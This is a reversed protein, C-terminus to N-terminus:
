EWTDGSSFITTITPDRELVVNYRVVSKVFVGNKKGPSFRLDYRQLQLEQLMTEPLTSLEVDIKDVGGTENLFIRFTAEGEITPSINEVGLDLPTLISPSDDLEQSTFYRTSYEVFVKNEREIKGEAPLMSQPVASAHLTKASGQMAAQVADIKALRIEMVRERVPYALVPTNKGIDVKESFAFLLAAHIVISVALPLGKRFSTKM